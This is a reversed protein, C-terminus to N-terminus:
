GPHTARRVATARVEPRVGVTRLALDAYFETIQDLTLDGGDRYWRTIDISQSLLARTATRPDPTDFDGAAIGADVVTRILDTTQRRLAGITRRHAPGLAAYEYNLVRARVRNEAHYRAMAGLLAALRQPPTAAPDDVTILLDLMEIHGAESLQFLLDEKSKYHVYVAAPSMGAAAAIDRTSTAHFGREAFAESAAHLLRTRTLGARSSQEDGTM